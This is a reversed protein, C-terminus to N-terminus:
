SKLDMHVNSLNSTKTWVPQSSIEKENLELMPSLIQLRQKICFDLPYRGFNSDKSSSTDKRHRHTTVANVEFCRLLPLLVLSSENGPWWICVSQWAGRHRACVKCWANLCCWHLGMGILNGLIFLSFTRMSPDFLCLVSVLSAPARTGCSVMELMDLTKLKIVTSTDHSM